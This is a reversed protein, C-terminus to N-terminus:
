EDTIVSRGVWHITMEVFPQDQYCVILQKRMLELLALFTTIIRERTWQKWYLLQSFFLQGERQVQERIEEMRESVSIEERAVTTVPESGQQRSMVDCYAQLVDDVSLGELPHIDRAYRSLDIAPRTYIQSREAECEALREGLRKYRKYELLQEILQERPDIEEEVMLTSEPEKEPQPLLMRSKISLLTAAMVLFESAIELKAEEAQALIDMYQETISTISVEYIDMEAREVLHLLLDLPGEFHELKVKVEM